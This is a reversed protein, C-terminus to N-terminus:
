GGRIKVGMCKDLNINLGFDKYVIVARLHKWGLARENQEWVGTSRVVDDENAMIESLAMKDELRKLERQLRSSPEKNTRISRWINRTESQDRERLWGEEFGLGESGLKSVEARFIFYFLLFYLLATGSCAM